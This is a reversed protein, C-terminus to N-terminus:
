RFSYKFIVRDHRLSVSEPRLGEVTPMYQRIPRYVIRRDTLDYCLDKASHQCTGQSVRREQEDRLIMEPLPDRAQTFPAQATASNVSPAAASAMARSKLSDVGDNARADFGLTALTAAIWLLRRM